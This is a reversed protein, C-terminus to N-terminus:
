QVRKIAPYSLCGEFTGMSITIKMVHYQKRQVRVEWFVAPRSYLVKQRGSHGSQASGKVVCTSYLLRSPSAPAKM